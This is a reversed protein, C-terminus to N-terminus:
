NLRFQLSISSHISRKIQIETRAQLSNDQWYLVSADLHPDLFYDKFHFFYNVKAKKHVM